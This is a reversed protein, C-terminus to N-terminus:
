RVSAPAPEPSHHPGGLALIKKQSHAFGAICVLALAVPLKMASSADREKRLAVLGEVATAISAGIVL